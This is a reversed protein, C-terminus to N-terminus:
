RPPLNSAPDRRLTARSQEALAEGPTGWSWVYTVEDEVITLEIQLEFSDVGAGNSFTSESRLKLQGLGSLERCLVYLTPEGSWMDFALVTHETHLVTGAADAAVYRIEAGMGDLLPRIDFTADFPGSESGDGRGVFHGAAAAVRDIITEM